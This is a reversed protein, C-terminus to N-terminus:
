FPEKGKKVSIIGLFGPLSLEPTSVGLFIKKVKKDPNPAGRLTELTSTSRMM